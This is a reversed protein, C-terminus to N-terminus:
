LEFTKLTSAFSLTFKLDPLLGAVVVPAFLALGVLIWECLAEVSENIFFNWYITYAFHWELITVVGLLVEFNLLRRLQRLWYRQIQNLTSSAFADYITYGWLLCAAWLSLSFAIHLYGFKKFYIGNVEDVVSLGILSLSIYLGICVTFQRSKSQLVTYLCSHVAISIVQVVVAYYTCAFTFVKDHTRFAGLFSLTPLFRRCSFTATCASLVNGFILLFAVACLGLIVPQARIHLKDKVKKAM